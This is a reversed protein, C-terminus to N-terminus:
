LVDMDDHDDFLSLHIVMDFFGLFGNGKKLFFTKQLPFSKRRSIRNTSKKRSVIEKEKKGDQGIFCFAQTIAARSTNMVQPM